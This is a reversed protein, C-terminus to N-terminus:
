MNDTKATKDVKNVSCVETERRDIFNVAKGWYGM